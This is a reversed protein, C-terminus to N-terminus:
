ISGFDLYAPLLVLFMVVVLMLMMPLLLKTAGEEGAKRAMNRRDEWAGEAEESLFALLSNNGKKLHVALLFCLKRYRTEGCRKGFERYVQEELVGNELQFCAIKMEEYLYNKQKEKRKNDYDATIRFFANKVTLGASLYLRLKNVFGAYETTLQKERKKCSKELDNEMGRGVWICGLLSLFFLFIGKEKKIERWQINRGQLQEPLYIEKKSSGEEDWQSLQDELARFFKEEENLVEPMLIVEYTYSSKQQGYSLTATLDVKEKQVLGKRCIKGAGDIREDKSSSWTIRFPYGPVSSVLELESVVHLLDSNEKQIIEPLKGYLEKKLTEQEEKTLIREKVQFPIEQNWDEAEARLTVQYDGAGQENRVLRAGEALRSEIRGHLSASVASVMGILLILLMAGTKRKQFKEAIKETNELPYLLKLARYVRDNEKQYLFHRQKKKRRTGSSQFPNEM